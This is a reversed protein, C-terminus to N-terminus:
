LFLTYKEETLFSFSGVKEGADGPNGPLGAEGTKGKQFIFLM